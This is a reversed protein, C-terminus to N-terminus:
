ALDELSSRLKAYALRMRSKVTGLPLNLRDAIEPHALGEVFALRIVEAQDRPLEAIAANVRESTQSQAVNDLLEDPGTVIEPPDIALTMAQFSKQRRMRDIHLNRAIAYIWGAEDGRSSDYHRAKKWVSLFTEQMLEDALAADAGRRVMFRRIRQGYLEYLERFAEADALRAIRTLLDTM